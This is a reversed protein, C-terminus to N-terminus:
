RASSGYSSLVGNHLRCGDFVVKGCGLKDGVDVCHWGDARIGKSMDLGGLAVCRAHLKSQRHVQAQREDKLVAGCGRQDGDDVCTWVYPNVFPKADAVDTLPPVADNKLGAVTRELLLKKKWHV